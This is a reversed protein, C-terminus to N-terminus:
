PKELWFCSKILRGWYLMHIDQLISRCNRMSKVSTYVKLIQLTIDTHKTNHVIQKEKVPKVMKFPTPSHSPVKWVLFNLTQLKQQLPKFLLVDRPGFPVLKKSVNVTIILWPITTARYSPSQSTSNSSLKSCKAKKGGGLYMRNFQALFLLRGRNGFVKYYFSILAKVSVYKSTWLQKLTAGLLNSLNYM